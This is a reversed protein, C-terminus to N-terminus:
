VRVKQSSNEEQFTNIIGLAAARGTAMCATLLYGGTPAEWDLMEGACFVGPLLKLQFNDDVGDFAVGGASSIAEELPRPSNLMVSLAKIGAALQVASERDKAPLCEHLLAVHLPSLKLSTKLFSTWSKSGKSRALIKELEAQSRDPMLDISLTAYGNQEIEDRLDASLAYIAGGELGYRTMVLDGRKVGNLRVNKLVQGAFREILYGSWSVNFGCNAPLLPHLSIQKEALLNQWRGDSGLKPWSGGGLALLCADAQIKQVGDLSHFILEAHNTGWGQWRHRLHFHVGQEQLRRLWARLLPAAKMAKPFVRGSTGVFTEAGLGDAWQRLEPAGFQQLAKLFIAPLPPEPISSDTLRFRSLFLAQDESHTLNLGGRGAMLFKRGATPMVDYVDVVCGAKSLVEAAM